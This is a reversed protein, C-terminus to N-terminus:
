NFLFRYFANCPTHHPEIEIQNPCQRSQRGGTWGASRALIHVVQIKSHLPPSKSLVFIKKSAEALIKRTIPGELVERKPHVLRKVRPTENEDSEEHSWVYTYKAQGEDSLLHHERNVMGEALPGDTLPLLHDGEEEKQLCINPNHTIANPASHNSELM